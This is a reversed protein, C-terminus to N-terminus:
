NDDDDALMNSLCPQKHPRIPTTMLEDAAEQDIDTDLTPETSTTSARSLQQSDLDPGAACKKSSFRLSKNLDSREKCSIM